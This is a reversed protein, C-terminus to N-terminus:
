PRYCSSFISVIPESELVTMNTGTLNVFGDVALGELPNDDKDGADAEKEIPIGYAREM